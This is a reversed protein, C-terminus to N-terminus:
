EAEKPAISSEITTREEARRIYRLATEHRTENPWKTGVSMILEEYKAKYADPAGAPKASEESLPQPPTGIVDIENITLGSAPTSSSLAKEAIAKSACYISATKNGVLWIKSLEGAVGKTNVSDWYNGTFLRDPVQAWLKASLAIYASQSLTEMPCLNNNCRYSDEFIEHPIVELEKKCLVCKPAANDPTM